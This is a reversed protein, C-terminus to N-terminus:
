VVGAEGPPNMSALFAVAVKQVILVVSFLLEDDLELPVVVVVVESQKGIPYLYPLTRYVRSWEPEARKKLIRDLFISRPKKRLVDTVGTVKGARKM